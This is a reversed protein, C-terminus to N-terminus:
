KNEHFYSGAAHLVTGDTVIHQMFSLDAMARGSADARATGTGLSDLAMTIRGSMKTKRYKEM